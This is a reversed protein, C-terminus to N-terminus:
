GEEEADEEADEEGEEEDCEEGEGDGAAMVEDDGAGEELGPAAEADEDRDGAADGGDAADTARRGAAGRLGWSCRSSPMPGFLSDLEPFNGPGVDTDTSAVARLSTALAQRDFLLKEDRNKRALLALAHDKAMRELSNTDLPIEAEDLEDQLVYVVRYSVGTSRVSHTGRNIKGDPLSAPFEIAIQIEIEM